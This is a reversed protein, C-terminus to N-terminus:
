SRLVVKLYLRVQVNRERLALNFVGSQGRVGLVVQLFLCIRCDFIANSQSNNQLKAVEVAARFPWEPLGIFYNM